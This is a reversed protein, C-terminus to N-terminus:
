DAANAPWVLFPVHLHSGDAFDLTVDATDGPRLPHAAQELMLHYGSPALAVHGHPPIDLHDVGRMASNGAQDTTSQHLMAIAYASSHAGVLTAPSTGDNDLAVYGGAPLDGPLLRIWAQSAKVQNAQTAQASFPIWAALLLCRLGRNM